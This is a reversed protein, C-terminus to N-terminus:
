KLEIKLLPLMSHLAEGGTINETHRAATFITLHWVCKNESKVDAGHALLLPVM